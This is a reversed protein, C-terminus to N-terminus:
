PHRRQLENGYVCGFDHQVLTVKGTMSYKKIVDVLMDALEPFDYGWSAQQQQNGDFGPM